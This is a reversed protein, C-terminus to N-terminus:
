THDERGGSECIEIEVLWKEGHVSPDTAASLPVAAHSMQQKQCERPKRTVRLVIKPHQVETLAIHQFIYLCCRGTNVDLKLTPHDLLVM